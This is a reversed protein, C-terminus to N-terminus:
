RKVIKRYEVTTGSQLRIIYIGPTFNATQVVTKEFLSGSFVVQSISNLVIFDTMNPGGVIEITLENTVPNPYVKISKSFLIPDIRTPIFDISNSPDSSCTTLTVVVYYKGSTKPTFDQNTEGIVPGTQNYWQNGNSADSHFNDGDQTIVPTAPLPNVTVALSSEVGDGCANIGKVTINGSIASAGFNVLISNTTSTGTAGSPLTWLYSTADSITPVAYIVPIQDQCVTTEGMIVGAAAPLPNVTVALTSEVGNGCANMGKVTINGSVASTGFNVLISNTTSTGTAGSPLTWLYSTADAIAPVTYTVPNEGQCVTTEGMIVGAAAPLPNVTVALSSKVGDGCSNIGKVTINGSIASAGFNVLISKTTSTGTAGSPLTWLYSTANSITPVAYIVPIQDQCVTTEGMIVGAAAPLPNVTVALSSEVGNGCANMGKVTINGSVASTGFNVLISKTTSTGTAGSPLTWLYSTANAIAPVTYTVPNEGQCVTSTGSIVGAAAPLPKVTVALSSKVGDGCANIGKVTINGSIASAGFNVFISNTTSTGTVGSPLTWLYSTANAIAPVTYTVPNEGQCVTSTGSIVGVAAPLPNVTVALSSKVGDGCVNIGKVTINDSVASTGFNVLISNTTSTGTAGSPLTWLYSTANAIAPVTYTVPNEGQCVTSTGSIVGAAVPLPNVTVALSSKVGDGCVNIGKVTINGSVASTGFNVLISNTTSTGTAGSPLTWLYSTANAIAPVTYTVPNEGQCVTSTGSIVGAAAPLPKVTVALSSKVGDGCANIGKVTINGSVASTGFNVLISNTTSTGTAGSPLTWLYSTANAIAPVTYTVPNEGQCVTSTGSIVGAAAPLPNVTIVLKSEVGNGCANMGKVTINGSVASTGFNVLINTTTSTGTAGSPLTWLYSTANAIAPVTYTVPNEGQCVTSTGSIVGAAAPLPNVTLALSSEVGDGCANIGKVTINGSVASTGFNVLISNTTSTGTAGSPLTWLYSTANAIAPVTYTVPNEGQCVTSTGSIVGAAAPLPKVTVALSSEVGNGCANIGKVTINGSIASAGFNVFISNTASTGTVGSPLTWLYSTANSIAPVTYTVPNEGQCVTSTGSIVGAAAPLPNITITLTSNLGEGSNNIGKVTINGSIASAGFNVLISNTTSTGTVGSPLTWLYSTADAIAPVSYTVSDQGQCVTSLGSISGANAPLSKITISNSIATNTCPYNSSMVCSVVEGNILNSTAYTASNIGANIGNVQWQFNPDIGEISPTALFTVLQGYSITTPPSANITIGPSLIPYVTILNTVTKTDSGFANSVTLKVAYTGAISYTHSPNKITYDVNGSNDIDWAWSTPNGTSEDTFNVTLPACGSYVSASFNAVPNTGTAATITNSNESTGGSNYARVRYYYYTNATLGTVAFTTNNGANINSYNAVLNTFSSNYSIDLFYNTALSSQNWNASFGSSTINTALNAITALPPNTLTVVNVTNSNSSTGASNYARIRYYYTTGATLSVVDSTTVNSVNRNNYGTIFSSFTSKISIDLYYGTAELSPSWNASFGSQTINGASNAIPAEPININPLTSLNINNSNGSTGGSNYARVRYYYPSNATLGNVITTTVNGIDKNEFGSIFSSFTNTASVDLYYGTANAVSNWNASFSLQSINTAAIAVPANPPDVIAMFSFSVTKASTNETINTIPKNTNVGAWSLSYPTTLDTFSTKNTSGPYPLGSSNITGYDSPPNYAASACVPYMGQHSTANIKNGALNIYNGDVHYIVMGHGPIYYDFLQKQRNEILFYENSTSTNIRYFSNSNVEANTLTVNTNSSLNTASAWGYQYILTYPNFHAPTVGNNNWSGGAMIDWNGTGEYSGGVTDDTDYFDSAGLVHGFEHCIVGIRAIGAGSYGRLEASCSYSSITKGTM